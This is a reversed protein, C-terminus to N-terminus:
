TFLFNSKLFIHLTTHLFMRYYLLLNSPVDHLVLSRNFSRGNICSFQQLFVRNYLLLMFSRGIICSFQELFVRNYLLLM